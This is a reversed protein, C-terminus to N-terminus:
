ARIERLCTRCVWQGSEVQSLVRSTNGCGECTGKRTNSTANKQQASKKQSQITERKASPLKARL